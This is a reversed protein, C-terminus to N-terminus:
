NLIGISFFVMRFIFAGAYTPPRNKEITRAAERRTEIGEVGASLACAGAAPAATTTLSASGTFELLSGAPLCYRAETVFATSAPFPTVMGCPATAATESAFLPDPQVVCSTDTVMLPWGSETALPGALTVAPTCPAALLAM